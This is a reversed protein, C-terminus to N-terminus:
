SKSTKLADMFNQSLERSLFLMAFHETDGEMGLRDRWSGEILLPAVPVRCLLLRLNNSFNENRMIFHVKGSKNAKHLMVNGQGGHELQQGRYRHLDARQSYFQEEGEQRTGAYGHEGLPDLINILKNAASAPHFVQYECVPNDERTQADADNKPVQQGRCSVRRQQRRGRRYRTTGTGSASQKASRHWRRKHGGNRQM